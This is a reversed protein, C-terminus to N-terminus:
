FLREENYKINGSLKLCIWVHHSFSFKSFVVQIFDSLNKVMKGKSMRSSVGMLSCKSGIYLIYDQYGELVGVVAM